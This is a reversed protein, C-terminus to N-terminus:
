PLPLVGKWKGRQLRQSRRYRRDLEFTLEEDEKLVPYVVTTRDGTSWEYTGDIAPLRRRGATVKLEGFERFEPEDGPAHRWHVIASDMRCDVREVVAGESGPVELRVDADIRGRRVSGSPWGVVFRRLPGAPGRVREQGDM